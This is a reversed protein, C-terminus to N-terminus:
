KVEVKDPEAGTVEVAIPLATMTGQEAPPEHVIQASAGSALTPSKPASPAKPATPAKPAAKPAAPASPRKPKPPAKAPKASVSPAAALVIALAITWARHPPM